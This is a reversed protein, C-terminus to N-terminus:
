ERGQLTVSSIRGGIVLQIKTMHLIELESGCICVCGDHVGVLIKERGYAKVGMHNEILVRRCGYIEIIPQKSLSEAPLDPGESLWDLFPRGARM